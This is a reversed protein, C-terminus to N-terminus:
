QVLDASSTAADRIRALVENQGLVVMVEFISPSRTSGTLAVRLVQTLDGIKVQNVVAIERVVEELLVEDWSLVNTLKVALQSLHARAGATLLCGAKGIFLLPRSCVYFAADDALENLTRARLKLGKMGATLRNHETLSLQKRLQSELRSVTLRVLETDPMQRLYIGNLSDLKTFDLRSPSRGIGSLNFLAIAQTTDIIEDNGHSWGLRLLYNRIAAPLYGMDRWTSIGLAGQRKSLKTGSTGYILPIHAFVPPDAELARWLQLQRFANTLHDDGRIIHTVGMNIDDIVVSLMYTPSGDARLLVMDDLQNNKITIRGQVEDDLVTIGTQPAKFRIVPSIDSPATAPNRDRWRGDYRVPWGNRRATERMDILEQPTCWCRYAFGCDVLRLAAAQHLDRRAYQSVVEGDWGLGLWTLDNIIAQVADSTSRVRDTDEIRLLFKGHHHRAFLWNFLATRAGGIHLYGTPSPAFRTIVSM